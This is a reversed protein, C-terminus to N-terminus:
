RPSAPWASRSRTTTATPYPSRPAAPRGRVPLLQNRLQAAQRTAQGAQGRHRIRAAAPVHRARRRADPGRRRGLRRRGLLRIRRGEVRRSRCRPRRSRRSSRTTSRSARFRTTRRRRRCRPLPGDLRDRPRDTAGVEWYHRSTFHSQDPHTYGIAPMVTVKGEGHLQALPAALTGTCGRTRPSPTGPTRPLALQPRLQRYAPGRGPLAGLALRRRGRPLRLRPRTGAGAAAGAIGEEFLGLRLEGAGYVALALGASRAALFSARDLGTGAPLPMGPEIAPLGHGATAVRPAPARRPLIRQLRLCSMLLDPLRPLRRAAHAAREVILVRTPRNAELETPTAADRAQAFSSCRAAPTETSLTPSGWFALARDVLKAADTPSSRARTPDLVYPLGRLQRRGAAAFRRPTSGASTTGAPSTPRTSSGSAPSTPSGRGPARHRGDRGIRACCAPSRSSRRSSWARGTTSRAPADPDGGRRAPGPLRQASYLRELPAPDDAPPPEPHLLELAEDVFFSAHNRTSSASGAPTRGTSTARRASSRRRAPTTATRTSASTTTATAEDGLRQALRDARAGARPRRGRHLRRRRRAHVAGDGRARLEREARGEHERQGSLWILM